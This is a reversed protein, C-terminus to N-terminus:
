YQPVCRGALCIYGPSCDTNIRCAMSSPLRSERWQRYMTSLAFYAAVWILLPMLFAGIPVLLVIPVGFRGQRVTAPKLAVRRKWWRLWLERIAVTVGVWILFPALMGALLTLVLSVFRRMARLLPERIAVFLAVWILFPFLIGALFFLAVYAVRKMHTVEGRQYKVEETTRM